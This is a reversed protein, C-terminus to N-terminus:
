CRRPTPTTPRSRRSRSRRRTTPSAAGARAAPRGRAPQRPDAEPARRDGQHHLDPGPGRGPSVRGTAVLWVVRAAMVTTKGSGAGAIVVAPELPATIAAFQQESFTCDVGLLDRLQEPTDIARGTMGLVTGAAKDPCIAQFTCRRCHPAPAHSSSARGAAGRRGADAAGRRTPSGRRVPRSQHQVKPLVDGARLQVLEAGGSAAPRGVLEDAAGNDVALQYLGLQSHQEVDKDAPPYKSTKLDVVVVRGDEDLELRDAYGHLRVVQGDPLTVEATMRPEVGRGHPRGTARHWAVFRALAAHVAERERSRSWPTRFEMRGWVEDVLPMLDTEVDLDPGLEGQAIREAVAHVIKGFGQGTSSVM